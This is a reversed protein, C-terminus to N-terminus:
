AEVLERFRVVIEAPDYPKAIFIARIPLQDPLYSSKGSTIIIHIPPWRDRVAESLLLGTVGGPMDVDTFMAQIEPHRELLTIADTSNSAELVQYGADQLYDVMAFRILPEDEVVLICTLEAAM